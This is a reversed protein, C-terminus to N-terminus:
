EGGKNSGAQGAPRMNIRNVPVPTPSGSAYPPRSTAAENIPKPAMSAAIARADPMAKNAM